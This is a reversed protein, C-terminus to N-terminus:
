NSMFDVIVWRDDRYALRMEVLYQVRTVRDIFSVQVSATDAIVTEYGLVKQDSMWRERLEGTGTLAGLLREDWAPEVDSTDVSLDILDDRVGRAASHLDVHAAIFASDSAEIAAFFGKLTSKPSPRSDQSCGAAGLFITLLVLLAAGRGAIRTLYTFFTTAM